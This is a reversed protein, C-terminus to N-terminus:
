RSFGARRENARLSNVSNQFTGRTRSVLSPTEISDLEFPNIEFECAHRQAHEPVSRSSNFCEDIAFPV